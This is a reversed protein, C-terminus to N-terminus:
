RNKGLKELLKVVDSHLRSEGTLQLAAKYDAMAKAPNGTADYARGRAYYGEGAAWCPWEDLDESGYRLVVEQPKRKALLNLMEASKRVSEIPIRSTIADAREYERMSRAAQAALKFASAKQFDTLEGEAGDALALYAAARQERPLNAAAKAATM